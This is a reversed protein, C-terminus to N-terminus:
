ESIEQALTPNPSLLRANIWAEFLPGMELLAGPAESWQAEAGTRLDKVTHRGVQVRRVEDDRLLKEVEAPARLPHGHAGTDFAAKVISSAGDGMIRHAGQEASFVRAMEGRFVVACLMPAGDGPVDTSERWHWVRADTKSKSSKAPPPQSARARPGKDDSATLEAPTFVHAALGQARAYALYSGRLWEVWKWSARSAGLYVISLPKTNASEFTALFLARRARLLQERLDGFEEVLTNAAEASRDYYAEFALDESAIAQEVAHDVLQLLAKASAARRAAREALTRDQWFGELKSARDFSALTARLERALASKSWRQSMARLEGALALVEAVRAVGASEEHNTVFRFTIAHPAQSGQATQAAHLEVRAGRSANPSASLAGQSAQQQALFASLPGTVLREIARKLPRAGYRPDTGAKVIADVASATPVLAVGARRLGERQSLKKLERLVVSRLAEDSLPDFVVFEDVRNFLEPRFFAEAESLYHQRVARAAREGTATEFGAKARLTDAGLNSTMVLVCNRFDTFRGRADSLRGEGLVGLLVDFVLPHAKEIEDFLVVSFPQRRVAGTLVGASQGDGVLRAVADPGVYEGMDLRVLREDSGFVFQALARSLETKGVGTPGAFFLVAAPKKTDQLGAKLVSVVEVVREVAHRQGVVRAELAARVSTPDLALDDRLLVPPIGSEDAFRDIVASRELSPARAHARAAVARRLFAIANGLTAGYPWFRRSLLLCTEVADRSITVDHASSLEDAVRLAIARAQEPSPEDVRLVAFSRSFAPNRREIETWAEPTAEGIACVERAALAPALVQAVNDDREASRGADLLDGVNGLGLVANSKSAERLVELLQQQWEGFGGEGAILRSGDVVFLLRRGADPLQEESQLRAALEALVASKGVGAPGVLVIPDPHPDRLRSLIADILADRGYARPLKRERAHAHWPDGVRRLTKTARRLSAETSRQAESKRAVRFGADADYASAIARDLETSTDSDSRPGDEIEDRDMASSDRAEDPSSADGDLASLPRERLALEHHRLASLKTIAPTVEFTSLEEVGTKRLELLAPEDLKKLHAEFLAAAREFVDEGGELWFRVGLRPAFAEVYPRHAPALVVSLSLPRRERDHANWVPLVPLELEVLEGDGSRTWQSVLGPHARSIADDAALSLEELAREASPAVVTWGDLALPVVVSAGGGRKAM